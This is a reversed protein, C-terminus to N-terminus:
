ELIRMLKELHRLKSRNELKGVLEAIGRLNGTVVDMQRTWLEWKDHFSDNANQECYRRVEEMLRTLSKLLQEDKTSM